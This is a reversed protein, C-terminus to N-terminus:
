WRGYRSWRQRRSMFWYVIVCLAIFPLAKFALGILAIGAVFTLVLAGFIVPLLLLLGAAMLVAKLASDKVTVNMVPINGRWARQSSGTQQDQGPQQAGFEGHQGAPVVIESGCEYCFRSQSSAVQTGCRPCYMTKETENVGRQADSSESSRTTSWEM